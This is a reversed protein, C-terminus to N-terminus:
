GSLSENAESYKLQGTDYCRDGPDPRFVPHHLRMQYYSCFQKHYRWRKGENAVEKALGITMTNIAGKSAAYDIYESSSGFRSAGPSIVISGGIGRSGGTVLLDKKMHNCGVTILFFGALHVFGLAV